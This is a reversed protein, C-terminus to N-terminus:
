FLNFVISSNKLPLIEDFDEINLIDDMHVFYVHREEYMKCEYEVYSRINVDGLFMNTRFIKDCHKNLEALTSKYEIRLIPIYKWESYNDEM